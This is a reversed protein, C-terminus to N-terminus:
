STTPFSSLWQPELLDTISRALTLAKATNNFAAQPLAIPNFTGEAPLRLLGRQAIGAPATAFASALLATGLATAKEGAQGVSFAFGAQSEFTMKLLAPAQYLAFNVTDQGLQQTLAQVDPRSIVRAISPALLLTGCWLLLQNFSPEPLMALPLAPHDLRLVPERDLDPLLLTSSHRIWQAESIEAPKGFPLLAAWRSAHLLRSPLANFLLLSHAMPHTAWTNTM